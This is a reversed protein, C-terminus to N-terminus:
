REGLAIAEWDRRLGTPPMAVGKPGEGPRMRAVRARGALSIVGDVLLTGAKLDGAPSGILSTYGRPAAHAAAARALQM